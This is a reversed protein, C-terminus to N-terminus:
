CYLRFVRVKETTQYVISVEAKTDSGCELDPKEREARQRLPEDKLEYQAEAVGSGNHGSMSM